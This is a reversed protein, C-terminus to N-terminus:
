RRTPARVRLRVHTAVRQAHGARDIARLALRYTAPVLRPTRVLYRRGGISRATLARTRTRLCRSRRGRRRCPVASRRTLVARVRRIGASPAPDEVLLNVTCRRRACASRVLHLRPRGIDAIPPPPSPPPSAHGAPAPPPTPTPTTSAPGVTVDSSFALAYGGANSGRVECFVDTGADAPAVVYTARASAATLAVSGSGEDRLFRYSLTPSGSWAGPACTLTHGAEATGSLTPVDATRPAAPPNSAIFAGITAEAVRTYVGPYPAQACGLGFSVIGALVDDAPAVGGTHAVLPGGSDGFCADKGAQGACLMRATIGGGYQGACTAASVVPITVAHLDQPYSPSPTGSAPEPNVDGWGSVTVPSGAAAISPEQAATILGVPAISTSGDRNPTAGTWLPQSLAVVAADYDATVPDYRPDFSVAAAAVDRVTGPYAAEASSRLHATGALVHIEGAPTTQGGADDFVCHAATAVHTADLITGGCFQGDAPAGATPAWLAVQFPYTTITVTTGGVVRPTVQAAGAGSAATTLGAAVILAVTLLRPPRLNVM